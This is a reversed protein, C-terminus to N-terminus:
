SLVGLESAEDCDLYEGRFECVIALPETSELVLRISCGGQVMGVNQGNMFDARLVPQVVDGGFENLSLRQAIPEM